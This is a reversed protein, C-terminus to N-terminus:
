RAAPAPLPAAGTEGPLLNLVLATAIAIGSMALM